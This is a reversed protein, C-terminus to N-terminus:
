KGRSFGDAAQGGDKAHAAHQQISRPHWVQILQTLFSLHCLYRQEVWHRGGLWEGGGGGEEGVSEAQRERSVWAGRERM